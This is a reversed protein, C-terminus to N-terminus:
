AADPASSAFATMREVLDEVDSVTTIDGAEDQGLSTLGFQSEIRLSLEIVALSDYGLDEVLRNSSQAIRRGLPSMEGIVQRVQRRLMENQM